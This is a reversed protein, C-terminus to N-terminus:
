NSISNLFQWLKELNGIKKATSVPDPTTLVKIVMNSIENSELEPQGEFYARKEGQSSPPLAQQLETETPLLSLPINSSLADLQRKAAQYLQKLSPNRAITAMLDAEIFDWDDPHNKLQLGVDELALRENEKLSVESQELALLLALLTNNALEAM